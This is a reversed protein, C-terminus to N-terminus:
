NEVHGFSDAIRRYNDVAVNYKKAMRIVEFILGDTETQKGALLDKQLSATSEPLMADLIKLNTTLIDTDILINKANAISKIEETLKVFIDRYKGEKQMEGAAINFYAGCSALASVFSFKLFTDSEIDKSIISKIGSSCLAKSIKELKDMPIPHNKREGFVVKFINGSQVIEGPAAVYGVIYVCGDAIYVGKLERDLKDAIKDGMGIGNLIPIVLTGEKASKKIIPMIEDLSYSKVCIFIVDAKDFYEKDECANINTLLVEGKLGSKLKLGNQKIHKLHAGRAILTVEQGSLALFSGICGGTGGAGIVLFKM